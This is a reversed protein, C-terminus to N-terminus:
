YLLASAPKVHVLTLEEDNANINGVITIHPVFVPAGLTTSLSSILGQVHAEAEGSPRIWLSYRDKQVSM